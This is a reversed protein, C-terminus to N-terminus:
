KWKEQELEVMSLVPASAMDMELQTYFGFWCRVLGFWNITHKDILGCWVLGVVAFVLGSGFQIANEFWDFQKHGHNAEHAHPLPLWPRQPDGRPGSDQGAAPRHM